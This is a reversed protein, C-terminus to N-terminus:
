FYLQRYDSFLSKWQDSVIKGYSHILIIKLSRSTICFTKTLGDLADMRNGSTMIKKTEVSMCCTIWSQPAESCKEELGTVDRSSLWDKLTLFQMWPLNGFDLENVKSKICKEWHFHGPFVHTAKQNLFGLMQKLTGQSLVNCNIKINDFLPNSLISLESLRYIVPHIDELEFKAKYM